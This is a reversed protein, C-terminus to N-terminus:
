KKSPSLPVFLKFSIHLSTFGPVVEALKTIGSSKRIACHATLIHSCLLRTIDLTLSFEISIVLNKQGGSKNLYLEGFQLM